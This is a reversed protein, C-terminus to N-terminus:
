WVLLFKDLTLNVMQHLLLGKSLEQGMLLGEERGNPDDQLLIPLV